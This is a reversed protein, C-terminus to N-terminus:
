REDEKSDVDKSKADREGQDSQDDGEKEELEVEHQVDARTVRDKELLVLIGGLLSWLTLHLRYLVSLAFGRTGMVQAANPVGALYVAGFDAFFKQFLWDGLGWGNPAIPAASIISIVPVIVYYDFTPLGTGLAYGMLVVSAVSGIHNVIGTLLSWVIVARHGRYFFVAQDVLKLVNAVRPPLKELLHKLRVLQRLRRSFAVTGLLAVGLMVGWIALAMGRYQEFAFLVVVAALIALSALGLVRDVIVSVLAPVRQGPCRKMIYLAKILDGGTQGPVVNNFFIGIWTFRLTQSWSVPMQNVRLLWWWRTSAILVTVFYCLAGLSFLWPDINRWITFLGPVAARVTGDGQDGAKVQEWVGADSRFEVTEKDWDGIINGPKEDLIVNSAVNRHILRDHWDVKGFVVWMLVAVLLLKLVTVLKGKM